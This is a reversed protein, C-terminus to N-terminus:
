KPDFRLWTMLQGRGESCILWRDDDPLTKLEPFVSLDRSGMTLETIVHTSKSDDTLKRLKEKGDDFFWEHLEIFIISNGFAEFTAKDILEFEAGEIDIFLLSNSLVRSPLENYFNKKAAGRIYVRHLVNNLGANNKITERGEKSIEYCISKEFLNNILVGIGYYGDAAGLDIFTNYKKPINKLSDLVEKEYLGLLMSGRNASGWWTQNTLKLGAFPGYRVTSNYLKDLTNSIKIRRKHIADNPRIGLKGLLWITARKIASFLGDDKVSNIFKSYINNAMKKLKSIEEVPM